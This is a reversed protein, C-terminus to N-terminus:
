KNDRIHISIRNKTEREFDSFLGFLRTAKNAGVVLLGTAPKDLVGSHGLKKIHIIRRLERIVDFSTVGSPKDVALFGSPGESQNM